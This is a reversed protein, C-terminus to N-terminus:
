QQAKLSSGKHYVFDRMINGLAYYSTLASEYTAVDLKDMGTVKNDTAPLDIELTTEPSSEKGIQITIKGGGIMKPGYLSLYTQTKNMAAKIYSLETDLYSTDNNGCLECSSIRLANLITIEAAMDLNFNQDLMFPMSLLMAEAETIYPLSSNTVVTTLFSEANVLVRIAHSVNERIGIDLDDLELTKNDFAPIKIVLSSSDSIESGFQISIDGGSVTKTGNFLNIKQASQITEGDIFARFQINLYARDQDSISGDAAMVALEHMATVIDLTLMSSIRVAELMRVADILRLDIFNIKTANDDSTNKFKVGELANKRNQQAKEMMSKIAQYRAAADDHKALATSIIKYAKSNQGAASTFVSNMSKLATALQNTEQAYANTTFMALVLLYRIYKM